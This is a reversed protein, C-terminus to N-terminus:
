EDEQNIAEEIGAWAHELITNMSALIWPLTEIQERTTEILIITQGLAVSVNWRGDEDLESGIEIEDGVDLGAPLELEGASM